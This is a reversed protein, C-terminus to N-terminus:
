RRRREDRTRTHPFTTGKWVVFETKQLSDRASSRFCPAASRPRLPPKQRFFFFLFFLFLFCIFDLVCCRAAGGEERNEDFHRSRPHGQRTGRRWSEDGAATGDRRRRRRGRRQQSAVM